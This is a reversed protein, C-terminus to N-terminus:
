FSRGHGLLLDGFEITLEFQELRFQLPELRLVVHEEGAPQRTWRPFCAPPHGRHHAAEIVDVDRVGASFKAEARQLRPILGEDVQPIAPQLRAFFPPRTRKRVELRGSFLLGFTREIPDEV